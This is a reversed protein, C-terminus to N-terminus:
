IREDIFSVSFSGPIQIRIDDFANGQTDTPAKRGIPTSISPQNYRLYKLGTLKSTKV